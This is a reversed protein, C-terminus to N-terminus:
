SNSAPSPASLKEIEEHQRLCQIGVSERIAKVRNEAQAKLNIIEPPIQTKDEALNFKEQPDRVMDFVRKVTGMDENLFQHYVLKHTQSRLAIRVPKHRLDCPGRGVHEMAVVSRGEKGQESLLSRGQFSEHSPLGALELLTPALDLQSVMADNRSPPLGSSCIITPVRYVPELFTDFDGSPQHTVGPLMGHDGTIVVITDKMLNRKKLEKFLNSIQVDTYRLSLDYNVNGSFAREDQAKRINRDTDAVARVERARNLAGVGVDFSSFSTDHADMTHLCMFFPRDSAQDLWKLGSAFTYAGSVVRTQQRWLKGGLSRLNWDRSLLADAGLMALTSAKRLKLITTNKGSLISPHRYVLFPESFNRGELLRKTYRVPNLNFNKRECDAIKLVGTFDWRDIVPSPLRAPNEHSVLATKAHLYIDRLYADLFPVLGEACEDITVAGSDILQRSHELYLKQLNNLYLNFDHTPVFDDFGRDYGYLRECSFGGFFGATRYGARQFSEVFSHPRDAIGFEYGGYDLPMTSSFLGPLAFQTPCGVSYMNPFSVGGEILRDLEPTPSPQYGYAGIRASSLADVVVLIVNKNNPKMPARSRSPTNAILGRTNVLM